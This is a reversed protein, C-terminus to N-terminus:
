IYNLIKMFKYKNQMYNNMYKSIKYIIYSNIWIKYLLKTYFNDRIQNIWIQITIEISIISITELIKCVM